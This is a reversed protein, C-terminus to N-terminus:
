AFIDALSDVYIDAIDPLETDDHNHKDSIGIVFFGAAKATKAAHQRDEVVVAEDASVGLRKCCELYLTPDSKDKGVDNCCLIPDAFKDIGLRKICPFCVKTDTATAIACRIGNHTLKKLTEEATGKFPISNVYYPAIFKYADAPTIVNWDFSRWFNLSDVLTGDLDFIFAKKTNLIPDKFLNM